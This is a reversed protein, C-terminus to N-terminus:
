RAREADLQAQAAAIHAATWCDCPQLVTAGTLLDLALVTPVGAAFAGIGSAIGKFDPHKRPWNCDPTHTWRIRTTALTRKTTKMENGREGLSNSLM